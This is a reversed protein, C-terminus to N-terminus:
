RRAGKPRHRNGIDTAVMLAASSQHYEHWRERLAADALQVMTQRDRSPMVTIQSLEIGEGALFERVIDGFPRVHASQMNQATIVIGSLPCASGIKAHGHADLFAVVTDGVANRFGALALQEPGSPSICKLYSWDSSHGNLRHLWFGNNFKNRRVTFYAIGVGIKDADRHLAILDHLWKADADQVRDGAKYRHLMARFFEEAAAKTPFQHDGVVISHAKGM